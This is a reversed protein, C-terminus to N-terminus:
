LEKSFELSNDQEEEGNELPEIVPIATSRGIEATRIKSQGQFKAKAEIVLEESVVDGTFTGDALVEVQTCDASGEFVGNVVLKEAKLEGKIKGRKGIVIMNTSLITGELEGDVHLRCEFGFDGKISAGHAIVTTESSQTHTQHNHSTQQQGDNNHKSFIAM